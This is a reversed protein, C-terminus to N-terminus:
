APPLILRAVFSPAAHIPHKKIDLLLRYVPPDPSQPESTHNESSRERASACHRQGSGGTATTSEDLLTHAPHRQRVGVVDNLTRSRFLTTYPFLTSRPPRRIM